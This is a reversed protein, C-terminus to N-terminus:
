EQIAENDDDDDEKDEEDVPRDLHDLMNLHIRTQKLGLELCKVAARLEINRALLQESRKREKALKRELRGATAAAPAIAAAAAAAAAVDAGKSYWADTQVAVDIGKGKGKEEMEEVPRNVGVHGVDVAGGGNPMMNTLMINVCEAQVAEWTTARHPFHKQLLQLAAVAWGTLSQPLIEWAGLDLDGDLATATKNNKYEEDKDEEKVDNEDDNKVPQQFCATAAPPIYAKIPHKRSCFHVHVQLLSALHNKEDHSDDYSQQKELESRLAQLLAQDLPAPATHNGTDINATMRDVVKDGADHHESGNM